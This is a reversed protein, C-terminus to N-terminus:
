DRKKLNRLSLCNLPAKWDIICTLIIEIDSPCKNLENSIQIEQKKLRNKAPKVPYFM